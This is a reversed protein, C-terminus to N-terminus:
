CLWVCLLVYLARPASFPGSATASDRVPLAPTEVAFPLPVAALEPLQKAPGKHSPILNDHCCVTMPARGPPADDGRPPQPCCGRCCNECAPKETETAPDGPASALICCWGPPLALMVCATFALLNRLASRM